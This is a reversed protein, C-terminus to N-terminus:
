KEEQEDKYELQMILDVLEMDMVYPTTYPDLVIQDCKIGKAFEACEQFNLEFISCSYDKYQDGIQEMNSFLPFATIGDANSLLIPSFTSISELDMINKENVLNNQLKEIDGETLEINFPVKFISDRLCCILQIFDEKTKNQLFANKLSVLINGDALEEATPRKTDLYHTEPGEYKKFCELMDKDWIRSSVLDEEIKALLKKGTRDDLAIGSHGGHWEIKPFLKEYRSAPLVNESNCDFADLIWMDAYFIKAKGKRWNKDKYCKDKFKGILAIGDNDTGVQQLIFFDGKKLNEHEHISWNFESPYQGKKVHNVLDVHTETKYSSITPNWRLIYLSM